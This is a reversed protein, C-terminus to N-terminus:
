DYFFDCTEFTNDAHSHFLKDLKLTAIWHLRLGGTSTRWQDCTHCMTNWRWITSPCLQRLNLRSVATEMMELSGRRCKGPSQFLALYPSCTLNQHHFKLFTDGPLGSHRQSDSALEEEVQVQWKHLGSWRTSISLRHTSFLCKFSNCSSSTIKPWPWQKTCNWNLRTAPPWM